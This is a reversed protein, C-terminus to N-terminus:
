HLMQKRDRERFCTNKLTLIIKSISMFVLFGLKWTSNVYGYMLNEAAYEEGDILVFTQSNYDIMNNNLAEFNIYDM